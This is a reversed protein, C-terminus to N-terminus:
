NMTFEFGTNRIRLICAKTRLALLPIECHYVPPVLLPTIVFLM